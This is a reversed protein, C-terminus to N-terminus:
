LSREKKGSAGAKTASRGILENSVEHIAEVAQQGTEKVIPSLINALELQRAESLGAARQSFQIIAQQEFLKFPMPLSRRKCHESISYVNTSDDYVVMTEAALDGLRRFNGSLVMTVLGTLYGLPLFDVIRLLNRIVSSSLRVPTGDEQIVRLKMLKKGPTSGNVFVEFAVPYLWELLFVFISLIGAGFDGLWALLMALVIFIVARISFDILYALCRVIVGAPVVELDVGEPTEIQESTDLM